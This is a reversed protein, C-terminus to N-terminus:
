SLALAARPHFQYPREEYPRNQSLCEWAIECLKRAVAVIAKNPGIRARLRLYFSKFYPSHRIAIWAAEVFVFRLFRNCSSIARGHFVKGGSAYTSPILGAYACLKLKTPFRKITDIELAATAAFIAGLGPLSELIVRNHNDKLEEKIWRETEKLQKGLFELIELHSSLLENDPELLELSKLWAIGGVGFIDSQGPAQIHNRDIIQHIRNKTMTRLRVLWVRQRLINKQNRIERCPVHIAPIMGAKLIIALDRADREDTKIFTEAIPRLKLPHAIIPNLGTEELLDFMVGWTRGAEFVAQCPEGKPLQNKIASFAEPTNGTQGEWVTAGTQDIVSVQSYRKHYDIGMYLM